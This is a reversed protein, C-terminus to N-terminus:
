KNINEMMKFQGGTTNIKPISGPKLKNMVKCLVIGDRLTDEYSLGAPLPEGLVSEIWEKAEREQEPDRKSLLQLTIFIL